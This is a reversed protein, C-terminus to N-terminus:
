LKMVQITILLGYINIMSAINTITVKNYRILILNAIFYIFVLIMTIIRFVLEIINNEEDKNWMIM